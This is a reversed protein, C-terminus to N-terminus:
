NNVGAQYIPIALIARIITHFFILIRQTLDWKRRNGLSGLPNFLLDKSKDGTINVWVSGRWNVSCSQQSFIEKFFFNNWLCSFGIEPSSYLWHSYSIFLLDAFSTIIGLFYTFEVWFVSFLWGPSPLLSLFHVTSFSPSENGRWTARGCNLPVALCRGM